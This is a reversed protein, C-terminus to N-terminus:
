KRQRARLESQALLAPLKSSSSSSICSTLRSPKRRVHRTFSQIAQAMQTRKCSFGSRLLGQNKRLAVGAATDLSNTSLTTQIQSITMTKSRSTKRTNKSSFLRIPSTSQNRCQLSSRSERKRWRASVRNFSRHIKEAYRCASAQRRKTKAAEARM